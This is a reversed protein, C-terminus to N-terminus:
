PCRFNTKPGNTMRFKPNGVESTTSAPICKAVKHNRHVPSENKLHFLLSRDCECVSSGNCDDNEYSYNYAPLESMSTAGNSLCKVCTRWQHFARDPRDIAKGGSESFADFKGRGQCGYNEWNETSIKLVRAMQEINTAIGYAPPCVQRHDSCCDNNEICGSDCFCSAAQNWSCSQGDVM